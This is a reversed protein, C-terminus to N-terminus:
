SNKIHKKILFYYRSDLYRQHKRLAGLAGEMYRRNFLSQLKYLFAVRKQKIKEINARQLEEVKSILDRSM